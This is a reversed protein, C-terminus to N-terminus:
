KKILFTLYDKNSGNGFTVYRKFKEFDKPFYEPKTYYKAVTTEEFKKPPNKAEIFESFNETRQKIIDTIDDFRELYDTEFIYYTGNDTEIMYLVEDPSVNIKGIVSKFTFNGSYQDLIKQFDRVM